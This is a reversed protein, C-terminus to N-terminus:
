QLSAWALPTAQPRKRQTNPGAAPRRLSAGPSRTRFWNTAAPLLFNAMATPQVCTAFAAPRTEYTFLDKATIYGYTTQNSMCKYPFMVVRAQRYLEFCEKGGRQVCCRKCVSAFIVDRLTAWTYSLAEGEGVMAKVFILLNQFSYGGRDFAIAELYPRIFVENLISLLPTANIDAVKHTGKVSKVIGQAKPSAFGHDIAAAQGVLGWLYHPVTKMDSMGDHLPGSQLAIHSLPDKSGTSKANLFSKDAAEAVAVYIGGDPCVLQFHGRGECAPAPRGPGVEAGQPSFPPLGGPFPHCTECVRGEVKFMDLVQAAVGHKGPNMKLTPPQGLSAPVAAFSGGTHDGQGGQGAVGGGAGSSAGDIGGAVVENGGWNVSPLPAKPDDARAKQLEAAGDCPGIALAIIAPGGLLIDFTRHFLEAQGRQPWSGAGPTPWFGGDINM